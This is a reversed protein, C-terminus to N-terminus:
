FYEIADYMYKLGTKFIFYTWYILYFSLYDKNKSGYPLMFSIYKIHIGYPVNKLSSSIYKM